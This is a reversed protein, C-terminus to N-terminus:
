QKLYKKPNKYFNLYKRMEGAFIREKSDKYAMDFFKYADDYQSKEFALMGKYLGIQSPDDQRDMLLIDTWKSAKDFASLSLYEPALFLALLGKESNEYKEKPMLEWEGDLNDLIKMKDAQSLNKYNTDIGDIIEFIKESISIDMKESLTAM